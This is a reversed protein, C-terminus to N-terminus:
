WDGNKVKKKKTEIYVPETDSVTMVEVLEEDTLVAMDSEILKKAKDKAIDYVLGAEYREIPCTIKIKM